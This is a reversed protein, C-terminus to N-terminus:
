AIVREEIDKNCYDHTHHCDPCTLSGHDPEISTVFVKYPENADFPRLAGIGKAASNKYDLDMDCTKCRVILIRRM